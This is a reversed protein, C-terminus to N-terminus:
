RLFEVAQMMFFGVKEAMGDFMVELKPLLMPPTPLVPMVPQVPPVPLGPGCPQLPDPLVPPNQVLQGPQDGIPPVLPQGDPPQGQEVPPNVQAEGETPPQVPALLAKITVKVESTAGAGRVQLFQFMKHQMHQTDATVIYLGTHLMQLMEDQPVDQPIGTCYPDALLLSITHICLFLPIGLSNFYEKTLGQINVM